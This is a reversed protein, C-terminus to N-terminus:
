AGDAEMVAARVVQAISSRPGQALQQSIKSFM